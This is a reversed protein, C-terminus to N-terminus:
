HFKISGDTNLKIVGDYIRIGQSTDGRTFLRTHYGSSGEFRIANGVASICRVTIDPLFQLFQGSEFTASYGTADQDFYRYPFAADQTYTGSISSGLAQAPYINEIMDEEDSSSGPLADLTYWNNSNTIGAWDPDGPPVAGGWGYNMHYQRTLVGGINIEQWGDSVISHGPVGYQVPRNANFQTKMRNFWEVASDADRDRRTCTTSYRYYNEYARVMDSHSAGSGCVGYDMEVAVGVEYSLEAVADLHAQTLPDGNEDEWRNQWVNWVYRNAMHRWDYTDTLTVDLRGGGVNGGCSGDGDWNHSANTEGYPPWSWYKMIQAGATAVCGVLTPLTPNCIGPDSPCCDACGIDGTPCLANYPDGQHWSSSLLVDGAQYNMLVAGSDLDRKFTEVNGALEEWSRRYNIELIGELDATRVSEVPGVQEEVEDLIREMRGKLLDVMGKDSEPDLNSVASYAKVPALEKRLSVIIFGQPKVRCFYGLVREGQKFERIDAVEATESGGWDGKEQIILTIWNQAVTLAEDKTVVESQVPAAHVPSVLAAIALCAVLIIVVQKKMMM